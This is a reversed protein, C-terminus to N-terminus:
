VPRLVFRFRMDDEFWMPFNTGWANNHLNIHMGGQLAPQRNTFNLLSPTGPAVLPADLTDIALGGQKDRYEIGAGVAHLTRNGNRVVELPSILQGIKEMRWGQTNPALPTFSLWSAEPLRCAPKEFWQLTLEVVAAAQPLRAELTVHRPAGFLESAEAPLSLEALFTLADATERQWLAVLQPEWWASRGAEGIGPKTYDDISWNATLRKNINYQRRFRQYDQKSFTQYHFHALQHTADAWDRGTASETLTTIAGNAPDFGISFHTTQWPGAAPDIRTFGQLEIPRAALRQQAQQAEAALPTDGLAAVAQDLYERQEAWSAEFAQFKPLARAARFQAAAYNSYDALHTKEDMGWTHEPVQLLARSFGQVTPDDASAQGSGLWHRRLRSLERFRAVKLPDTGVGHIWTDGIEATVVPLQDRIPLLAAAFTDLTSGIVQAGPLRQRLHAFSEIAESATQPGLNDGTHAFALAHDLGAVQTLDGYGGDQYMVVLESGDPARWIFVPPVDPSPSAGNVGIHLLQVGASALLPVIGRTHGPVDSMKAAITQRGFRRDLEASLSLGYAFLSEDILESHTTFPLAHWAIDGAAIGQEILRRGAADARELAEYILWSGTTWIFRDAGQERLAQATALAHPIFEAFYRATVNRAYDTFGVDLHTKFILHVTPAASQAM